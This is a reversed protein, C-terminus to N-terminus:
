QAVAFGGTWPVADKAALTIQLFGIAELERARSLAGADVARLGGATVIDAVLAKAEADDGAILVTTPLPGVTGAALTGAFTTNFAKVVRSRPLADAIEATASSDAPVTLADFTQFDLPNTIDVVVKDALEDGRATLLDAVEPYPVALVVVDGSAPKDTDARGLLEATNGGDSVIGAIAKGMNGPGIITVHAM